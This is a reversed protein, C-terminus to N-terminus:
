ETNYHKWFIKCRDKALSDLWKSQYKSLAYSFVHKGQAGEGVRGVRALSDQKMKENDIKVLSDILQYDEKSLLPEGYGSRDAAMVANIAESNNLGYVLFRKFYHLKVDHIYAVEMEKEILKQRNQATCVFFLFCLLITSSLRKM